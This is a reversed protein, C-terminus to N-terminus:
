EPPELTTRVKEGPCVDVVKEIETLPSLVGSGSSVTCIESEATLAVAVIASPSPTM